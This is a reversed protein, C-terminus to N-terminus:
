LGRFKFLNAEYGLLPEVYISKALDHSIGLRSGKVKVILGTRTNSVVEITTSPRFGLEWLKNSTRMDTKCSLMRYYLGSEATNLLLVGSM